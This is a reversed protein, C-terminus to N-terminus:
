CEPIIGGTALSIGRTASGLLQGCPSLCIRARWAARREASCGFFDWISCCKKPAAANVTVQQGAGNPAAIAAAPTPAGPTTPTVAQRAYLSPTLAALTALGFMFKRMEM